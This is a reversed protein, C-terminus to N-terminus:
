YSIEFEKGSRPDESEEALVRDYNHINAGTSQQFLKEKCAAYDKELVAHKVCLERYKREL